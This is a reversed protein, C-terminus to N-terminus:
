HIQILIKYYLRTKLIKLKEKSNKLRKIKFNLYHICKKFVKKNNQLLLNQNNLKNRFHFCKQNNIKM